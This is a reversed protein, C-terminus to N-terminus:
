LGTINKFWINNEKIEDKDTSLTKGSVSFSEFGKENFFSQLEKFSILSLHNFEMIINQVQFKEFPFDKLVEFENGEIDIKILQINKLGASNVIYELPCSLISLLGDEGARTQTTGANDTTLQELTVWEIKPGIAAQKVNVRQELFNSQLNHILTPIMKYNPEIAIVKVKENGHAAICTFLGFNAGIDIFVGGDALLKKALSTSANEYNGEMLIIRTIWDNADLTFIVGEDNKFEVGTSILHKGILNQLRIKSPHGLSLLYKKFLRGKLTIPHFM